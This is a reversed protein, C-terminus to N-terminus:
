GGIVRRQQCDCSDRPQSTDTLWGALQDSFSILKSGLPVRALRKPDSLIPADFGYTILAATDLRSTGKQGFYDIVYNYPKTLDLKAVPLLSTKSGLQDLNVDLNFTELVVGDAIIQCEAFVTLNKILAEQDVFSLTQPNYWDGLSSRAAADM